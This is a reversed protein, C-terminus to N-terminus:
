GANESGISSHTTLQGNKGLGKILQDLYFRSKNIIGISEVDFNTKRPKGDSTVSANFWSHQVTELM